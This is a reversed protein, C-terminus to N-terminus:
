YSDAASRILDEAAKSRPKITCKFPEPNSVIGSRYKVSHEILKGDKGIAKSINFTLLVSAVVLSLVSIAIHNGPCIRRGFGFAILAPDRVKPDLQGNKLYREPKFSSPDPFDAENHLMAWANAIVITGKPVFYDKYVDDEMVGHPVGIPFTPQWRIIEKVLAAVYPLDKLDDYEPLRGQLVRDLEEQAKLQVEPFSIMAVFMSHIGSLTTDAGGLFVTGATDKIVSHQDELNRNEDINSVADVVFSPRASGTAMNRITAEYPSCLFEEQIKRFVKAQKQFTAGPIWSPIYRLIPLIDVLYTGSGTAKVISAIAKEALEINPDDTEKIDLGYALSLSIGGVAHRTISLFNEPEKLLQPLMKRLFEIQTAKYVDPNGPHFYKTFTRRRDRWAEAYPMVSMAWKWGMLESLMTFQPRDSYNHSRKEFLEIADDFSNLIIFDLGLAGLHIISSNYKECLKAYALWQHDTPLDFLNGLLPLKRPGPPLPLISRKGFRVRIFATLVLAALIALYDSTLM